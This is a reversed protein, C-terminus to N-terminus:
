YCRFQAPIKHKHPLIADQLPNAVRRKTKQAAPWPGITLRGCTAMRAQMLLLGCVPSASSPAKYASGATPRNGIPRLNVVQGVLFITAAHM